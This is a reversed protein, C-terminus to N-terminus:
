SKGRNSGHTCLNTKNSQIKRRFIMGCCYLYDKCSPGVIHLPLQSRRCEKKRPAALVLQDFAPRHELDAKKVAALVAAAPPHNSDPRNGEQPLCKGPGAKEVAFAAAPGQNAATRREVV